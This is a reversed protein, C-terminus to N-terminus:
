GDPCRRRNSALAATVVDRLVAADVDSLRKIYLCGKGTSHKGLGELLDDKPDDGLGLYLTLAAKRPSFGIRCMEGSRGSDYTYRYRGCGVIAPGWMAAPEGSVSEFLDVLAAVEARRPEPQGLIFDAVSTAEARTKNQAM